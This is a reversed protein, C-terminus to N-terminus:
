IVVVITTILINILALPLLKTWGLKQLQDYRFRPLTWRVWIFVFIMMFTKIIFTVIQIILALTQSNEVGMFLNYLIVLEIIATITIFFKSLAKAELVRKAKLSKAKSTNNKNMWDLFQYFVVPIFIALITLILISNERLMETSVWPLNYGGFFLTIILASSIFIAIYEAAFFLTFRIGSYETHYGGVLESVGEALDFPTRNTEAFATVIFIISALPQIIIGWSPIIGFITESQVRVMDNLNVSGYVILMSIIALGMPIEYSVSQSAARIAGLISFKNHSSWGALIIGYVSLGAFGFFWLIGIDIPLPQMMFERSNITINDAFPIVGLSMVVLTFLMMPAFIFYARHEIHNPIFDEKTFLKVVDAVSQVLGGLRINNIACRNPGSRDQMFASIRRELWVLIALSSLAIMVFVTIRLISILIVTTEM